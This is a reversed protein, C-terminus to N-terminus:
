TNALIRAPPYLPLRALPTTQPTLQETQDSAGRPHEPFHPTQDPNEEPAFNVEYDSLLLFHFLFFSLFLFPQGSAYLSPM